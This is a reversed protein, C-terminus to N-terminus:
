SPRIRRSHNTLPRADDNNAVTLNGLKLEFRMEGSEKDM